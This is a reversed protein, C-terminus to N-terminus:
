PDVMNCGLQQSIRNIPRSPSGCAVPSRDERRAGGGASPVPQAKGSRPLNKEWYIQKSGHRARHGGWRRVDGSPHESRIAELQAGM